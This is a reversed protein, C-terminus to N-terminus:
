EWFSHSSNHRLGHRAGFDCVVRVSTPWPAINRPTLIGRVRERLRAMAKQSPRAALYTRGTTLKLNTMWRRTVALAPGATGRCLIVFDDAYAVVNTKLRQDIGRDPWARLFRNMYVNALLPSACGGQPTGLGHHRGGTRRVRGQADREEVPAKLWLRLVHM